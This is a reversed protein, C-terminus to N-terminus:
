RRAFNFRLGSQDGSVWAIDGALEREGVKLVVKMGPLLDRGRLKAGTLSLDEILVSAANGCSVVLAAIGVRKRQLWRRGSPGDARKGFSAMRSEEFRQPRTLVFVRPTAIVPSSMTRLQSLKAFGSLRVPGCM